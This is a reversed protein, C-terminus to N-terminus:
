LTVTGDSCVVETAPIEYNWDSGKSIRYWQQVTGNYTVKTLKRCHVFAEAGISTVSNPIVVSTLSYCARFADDGITTVGNGIVVSRLYNCGRFACSDITTVSDPIVISTLGDCCSFADYGIRILGNGFTVSTLTPIGKLPNTSDSFAYSGIVKVSDPIVISTLRECSSFVSGSIFQTDEHIAYTTLNANTLGVLIQYPNNSDGVYTGFGYETYLASNCNDFAYSGIDAVSNNGFTVSTLSSCYSFAYSGITTVSDPIVVSTFSSCGKFAYNGITTVSDPIVISTLSSCSYFAYDGITTLSDSIVISTLSSCPFFAHDGISTVSDPIVISTLSSCYSFAYSDITTVSDPIVVSTLSSCDKFARDGITTVSDPIIVALINDNNYFAKTYINRVPLGMYEDALRIRKANGSYGIVEAYTGDLSIDYVVGETPQASPDCVICIEGETIHAEKADIEGCEKCEKWHYESDFVYSGSYDHGNMPTENSIEAKGCTSCTNIDYGDATCTAPIIETVFTHHEYSGSQWEIGNCETCIHYFLRSECPIDDNGPYNIWEGFTHVHEEKKPLEVPALITGNTLTIVLRGEEDFEIKEITAGNVGDEGDKGPAGNLGNVVGCNTFTGDSYYIILHGKNDVTTSIIGVGDKGNEGNIGPIGQEGQLSGLMGQLDECSALMTLMVAVLM